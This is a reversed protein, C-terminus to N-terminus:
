QAKYNINIMDLITIIRYKKVNKLLLKYQQGRLLKLFKLYKINQQFERYSNRSSFRPVTVPLVNKFIIDKM